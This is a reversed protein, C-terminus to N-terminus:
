KAGTMTLRQQQELMTIRNEQLALKQELMTIRAELSVMGQQQQQVSQDVAMDRQASQMKQATRHSAAGAVVATAAIPHRRFAM